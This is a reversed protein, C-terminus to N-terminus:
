IIDNILTEQKFPYVDTSTERGLTCKESFIEHFCDQYSYGLSQFLKIDPQEILNTESYISM